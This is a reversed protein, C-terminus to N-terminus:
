CSGDRGGNRVHLRIHDGCAKGPRLELNKNLYRETTQISAHGLTQQIQELSAGGNRSLQAYSRRLDHPRVEGLGATRATDRVILYATDVGFPFVRGSAGARYAEVYEAVWEPAPVSRVRGGKGAIDVWLWRQGRQQWQAWDLSCVEARRLGCGVMCAILARDRPGQAAELLLEVAPVELWTGLREGSRKAGKIRELAGMAVDSLIGRANAERALLRVAALAINCTVPGARQRKLSILWLQVGERTLPLGSALYLRLSRAYNRRSAPSGLSMVALDALDGLSPALVRQPADLALLAGM